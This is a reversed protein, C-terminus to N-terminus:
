STIARMGGRMAGARTDGYNGAFLPDIPRSNPMSLWARLIHRRLPPDEFDEFETRRHFTVWNNLFLIDGPQQRFTYHMEPQAAIAELCDLAERQVDSLNPLDNNAHAREILVRLFNAAFHGQYISFVPQRTCPLRNATDVNHRQYYFPRMLVHLLETHKHLMENFLAASSVVQNEGGSRAQRVCLFGIVDCRDTHFSLKKRTNPGRARPDNEAYGANRVSFIKEGAASQSIPHGIVETLKLFATSLSEPSHSSIDLGRLHVGGSGMELSERISKGRQKLCPAQDISSGRALPDFELQEPPSIQQDWDPRTSLEMGRWVCPHDIAQLSAQECPLGPDDAQERDDPKM